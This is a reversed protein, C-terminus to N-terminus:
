NIKSPRLHYYEDRSFGNLTTTEALLIVQNGALLWKWSFSRVFSFWNSICNYITLFPSFFFWNFKFFQEHFPCLRPPSCIRLLILFSISCDAFGSSVKFYKGSASKPPSFRDHDMQLVNQAVLPNLFPIIELIFLRSFSQITPEQKGRGGGGHYYSLITCKERM